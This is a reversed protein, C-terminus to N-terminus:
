HSQGCPRNNAHAFSQGHTASSHTNVTKARDPPKGNGYPNTQTNHYSDPGLDPHIHRNPQCASGAPTDGRRQGTWLEAVAANWFLSFARVEDRSWM